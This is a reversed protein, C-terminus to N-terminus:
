SFNLICADIGGNGETKMAYASLQTYTLVHVTKCPGKAALVHATMLFM